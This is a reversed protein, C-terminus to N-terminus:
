LSVWRSEEDDSSVADADEVNGDADSLKEAGHETADSGGIKETM